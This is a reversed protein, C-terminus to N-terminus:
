SHIEHGKCSTSPALSAMELTRAEGRLGLGVKGGARGKEPWQAMMKDSEFRLLQREKKEKLYELWGHHKPRNKKREFIRSIKVKMEM